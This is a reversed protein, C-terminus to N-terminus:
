RRDSRTVLPKASTEIASMEPAFGMAEVHRGYWRAAPAASIGHLIASIWVANVAIALVPEAIEDAVQEVILLAFLVTALGRPGFWGFFLRTVPSADTGVLSLWVALPRVVFLSVLIIALANASLHHLADPVLVLGFLLFAGWTLLQGEGETFAFVFRCRDM